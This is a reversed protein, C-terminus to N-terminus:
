NKNINRRYSISYEWYLGFPCFPLFAVLCNNKHFPWWFGFQDCLCLPKSVHTTVTPKEANATTQGWLRELTALIFLILAFSIFAPPVDLWWTRPICQPRRCGLPKYSPSIAGLWVRWMERVSFRNNGIKKKKLKEGGGARHTHTHTHISRHAHIVHTGSSAGLPLWIRQLQLECSQSGGTPAPFWVWTSQLPLM